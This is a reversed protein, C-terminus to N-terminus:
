EEIAKFFDKLKQQDLKGKTRVGSCVDIGFPQVIEIAQRINDKNLGGALFL